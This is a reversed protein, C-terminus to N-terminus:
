DALYTVQLRLTDKQFVASNGQSNTDHSVAFSLRYQSLDGNTLRNDYDDQFASTVDLSKIGLNQNPSFVGLSELAAADFADQNVAAFRLHDLTLSGLLAYPNGNIEVQNAWLEADTVEVGEPMESMDLTLFAKMQTNASVESDGVFVMAHGSSHVVGTSNMTRTLSTDFTKLQAHMIKQMSFSVAYDAALPTGAKDTATAAITFEYEVGEVLSPDFGVGM